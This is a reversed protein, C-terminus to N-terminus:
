KRQRYQQVLEGLVDKLKNVTIHADEDYKTLQFALSCLLANVIVNACQNRTFDDSHASFWSKAIADMADSLQGVSDTLKDITLKEGKCVCECKCDKSM